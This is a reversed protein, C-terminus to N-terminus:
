QLEERVLRVQSGLLFANTIGLLVYGYRGGTITEIMIGFPRHEVRHRPIEDRPSFNEKKTVNFFMYKSDGNAHVAKAEGNSALARLAEATYPLGAEDFADALAHWHQRNHPDSEVAKWLTPIDNM